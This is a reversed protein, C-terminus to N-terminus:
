GELSLIMATEDCHPFKPCRLCDAWIKHPLTSKDTEQFGFQYFFRPIYTLLFVKKIGLERAEKLCARVLERGIGRGQMQPAVALSRIEATEEWSIHLACVGMVRGDGQVWVSYDRLHDYIESLPRSLLKGEKAFSNILKHIAKGESIKAKRIM